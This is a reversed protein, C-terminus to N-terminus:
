PPVTVEVRPGRLALPLSSCLRRAGEGPGLAAATVEDGIDPERVAWCPVGTKRAREVLGLLSWEDPVAVVVLFNSHAHWEAASGPSALAYEIASHVAQAAQLGPPLDGRVAIYLRTLSSTDHV